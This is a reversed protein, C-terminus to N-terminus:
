SGATEALRDGEDLGDRVECGQADCLGLEVDQWRGSSRLARPAEGNMDLAARPAILVGEATRPVVTVRVSMGPLMRAPDTEDLDIWVQFNRRLSDRGASSAVSGVSAIRGTYTRDPWADLVCTAAMGAAIRGDDVDPLTADVRMVSLDPLRVVTTGPWSEDGIDFKRGMWPHEAVLMLGDRPATLSLSGIAVTIAEIERLTKELAIERVEIELRASREQAALGEEASELASSARSLELQREQWERLALADKPVEARVAAKDRQIRRQQVAFQKDALNVENDARQRELESVAQSARLEQETLTTDLASADFELVKDGAKVAVGDQQMWQVSLSWTPTQPTVLADSHAADLAGTLLVRELIDGRVVTLGPAESGTAAPQATCGLLGIVALLPARATM